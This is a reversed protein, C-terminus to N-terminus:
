FDREDLNGQEEQWLKQAREQDLIQEAWSPPQLAEQPLVPKNRDPAWVPIALTDYACAVSELPLQAAEAAQAAIKSMIHVSGPHYRQSFHTLILSRAQVLKALEGAVDPTSHGNRATQRRVADRMDRMRESRGVYANTAEHVVLDAGAGMPAVLSADCCDGLVV